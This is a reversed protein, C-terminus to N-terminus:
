KSRSWDALVVGTQSELRAVALARDALARDKSLSFHLLNKEADILELITTEGSQFGNVAVELQQKVKPLLSDRYMRLKREAERYSFLEQEIHTTLLRLQQQQTSQAKDIAATQKAVGAQRKGYFIPLNINLGAIVPDKGSDKPEGYEASGTLITKISFNFDPYFATEALERASRAKAIRQRASQLLPANELALAHIAASEKALIVEPLSEPATRARDQETGLLNNIHVRLPVARDALSASKEQIKTMEIQIKLVDFFTAKGGAYRSRAVGELYRLLELNEAMSQQSRGLFAYEIFATKVQRTIALEVGALKAGAIAADHDSIERLLSLKNFWPVSQSLGIAANQPGTRTEVPVLYYQVSLKPDPLIGTQKTQESSIRFDARAAQLAANGGLAEELYDSLEEAQAAAACLISFIITFLVPIQKKM